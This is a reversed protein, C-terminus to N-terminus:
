SKFRVIYKKGTKSIFITKISFIESTMTSLILKYNEKTNTARSLRLYKLQFLGPLCLFEQYMLTHNIYSGHLVYKYLLLKLHSDDNPYSFMQGYTSKFLFLTTGIVRLNFNSIHPQSLYVTIGLHLDQQCWQRDM